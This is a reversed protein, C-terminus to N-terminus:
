EIHFELMQHLSQNKMTLILNIKELVEQNMLILESLHIM